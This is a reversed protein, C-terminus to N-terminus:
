PALPEPGGGGGGSLTLGLLRVKPLWVSPVVDAVWATLTLLGSEVEAVIEEIVALAPKVSLLLQPEDSAAPAEHVTLTAKAGVAAPAWVPVNDMVLLVVVDGM